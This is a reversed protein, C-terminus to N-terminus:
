RHWRSEHHNGGGFMFQPENETNDGFDPGIHTISKDVPNFKAVQRASCPIGYLFGNPAAMFGDYWDTTLQLISEGNWIKVLSLQFTTQRQLFSAISIPLYFLEGPPIQSQPYTGTRVNCLLIVCM